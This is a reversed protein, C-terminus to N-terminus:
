GGPDEGDASTEDAGDAPGADPSALDEVDDVSGSM